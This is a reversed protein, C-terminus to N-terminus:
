PCIYDAIKKELYDKCKKIVEAFKRYQFNVGSPRYLVIISTDLNTLDSIILECNGNSYIVKPDVAIDPSALLLCGGGKSLARNTHDSAQLATSSTSLAPAVSVPSQITSTSSSTTAGTTSNNASASYTSITSVADRTPSTQTSSISPNPAQDIPTNNSSASSTSATSDEFNTDRDCRTISYDKFIEQIEADFIGDHLHSETIAILKSNVDSAVTAKLSGCKNRSQCILGQINAVHLEITDEPTKHFEIASDSKPKAFYYVPKQSTGKKAKLTTQRM